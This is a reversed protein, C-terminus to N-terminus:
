PLRETTSRKWVVVAVAALLLVAIQVPTSLPSMTLITLGTAISLSVLIAQRTLGGTVWAAFLAGFAYVLFTRTM